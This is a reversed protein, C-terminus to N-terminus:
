LAEIFWWSHFLRNKCSTVLYMIITTNAQLSISTLLLPYLIFYSSLSSCIVIVDWHLFVTWKSHRFRLKKRYLKVTRVFHVFWKNYAENPSIHKLKPSVKGCKQEVQHCNSYNSKLKIFCCILLVNINTNLAPAPLFCDVDCRHKQWLVKIEVIEM